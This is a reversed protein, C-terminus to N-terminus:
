LPAFLDYWPLGDEHGLLRAKARLYEWFKPLYEEMAGLLADLTERKMNAKKLAEDLPSDYGRLRCRNLTELKISNLSYAIGDQIRGYAKLEAEYADRRVSADPDYAKNRIDSLTTTTERYEVPVGSTLYGQLDSWASSGSIEYLSIAKEVEPSLSYQANKRINHLLFAHEELLPDSAIVEDLRDVSAVYRILLTEPEAMAALQQQLKGIMAASQADGTDAAQQLFAFAALLSASTNIQQLLTVGRHLVEAPSGSLDGAFASFEAISNELKKMDEAFKPDDYGRYLESLSWEHNMDTLMRENEPPVLRRRNM